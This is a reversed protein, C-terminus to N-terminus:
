WGFSELHVQDRCASRWALSRRVDAMWADPGCVYVDRDAIDPVWYRLAQQRHRDRRQQELWLRTVPPPRAALCELRARPGPHPVRARLAAARPVPLAAGRERPRLGHGRGTGALPTIGVGAGLFAVRERRRGARHAARLSKILARTGPRLAALQSSGDGLAKVSIRLSRRDPAASLSYPHARGGPRTWSAGRSSSAPASASGTCGWAPSTSRCWTTARTPSVVRLRHRMSRELPVLLRWWLLARAAVAWATWWYLTAGRSALFEQGDMLSTRLALGVGLYAYLHLLHWSEYHLRARAARVSTVAVLLLCLTGAVLLLMGPCYLHPEVPTAVWRAISGAAYGWTILLLHALM